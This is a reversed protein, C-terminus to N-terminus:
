MISCEPPKVGESGRGLRVESREVEELVVHGDAAEVGVDELEVQVLNQGFVLVVVVVAHVRQPGVQAADALVQLRVAAHTNRIVQMVDPDEINVNAESLM